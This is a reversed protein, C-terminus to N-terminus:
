RSPLFAATYLQSMDPPTSVLKLELFSLKLADLSEADFRCDTTFMGQDFDYDKAVLSQPYGTFTSEIKVTEAKHSSIYATTEIWAELFARITAPDTQMMQDSAYIAGSAVKGMYTSVPALIRGIKKEEM